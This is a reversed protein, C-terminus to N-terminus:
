SSLLSSTPRLLLSLIYCHNCVLFAPLFIFKSRSECVSSCAQWGERNKVLGTFLIGSHSSGLDGCNLNNLATIEWPGGRPSEGEPYVDGQCKPDFLQDQNIIRRLIKMQPIERSWTKVREEAPNTPFSLPKNRLREYKRRPPNTHTSVSPRFSPSVLLYTMMLINSYPLPLTSMIIIITLSQQPLICDCTTMILTVAHSIIIKLIIIIKFITILYKAKNVLIISYSYFYHHYM